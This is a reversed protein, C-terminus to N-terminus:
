CSANARKAICDAIRRGPRWISFPQKGNANLIFIALTLAIAGMAWTGPEPTITILGGGMTAPQNTNYDGTIMQISYDGLIGYDAQINLITWLRTGDQPYPANSDTGDAFNYTDNTWATSTVSAPNSSPFNKLAFSDGYFVYNPNTLPPVPPAGSTVSFKVGGAPGATPGTVPKIQFQTTLDLLSTTSSWVVQLQATQGEKFSVNDITIELARGNGACAEFTGLAFALLAIRGIKMKRRPM